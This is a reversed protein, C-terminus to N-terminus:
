LRAPFSETDEFGEVLFTPSRSISTRGQGDGDLLVYDISRYRIFLAYLMLNSYVSNRLSRTLVFSVLYLQILYFTDINFIRPNYFTLM